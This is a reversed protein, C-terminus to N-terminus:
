RLGKGSVKELSKGHKDEKLDEGGYIEVVSRRGKRM